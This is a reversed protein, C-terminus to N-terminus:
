VSYITPLTLHTYSVSNLDVECESGDDQSRRVRPRKFAEGEIELASPTSGARRCAGKISREYAAGCLTQVEEAMIDIFTSRITGRIFADFTSTVKDSDDQGLQQIIETHKM